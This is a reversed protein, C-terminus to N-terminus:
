RGLHTSVIVQSVGALWIQDRLSQTLGAEAFWNPRYLSFSRASNQFTSDQGELRLYPVQLYYGQALVEIRRDPPGDRVAVM